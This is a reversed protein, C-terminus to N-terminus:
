LYSLYSLPSCPGNDKSLNSILEQVGETGATDKLYDAAATVEEITVKGDRDRCLFCWMLSYHGLSIFKPM